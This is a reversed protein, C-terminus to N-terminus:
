LASLQGSVLEVQRLFADIEKWRALIREEERPFDISMTAAHTHQSVATAPFRKRSDLTSEEPGRWQRSEAVNDIVGRWGSRRSKTAALTCSWIKVCVNNM